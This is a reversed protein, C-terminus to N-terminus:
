AHFDEGDLGTFSTLDADTRYDSEIERVARRIQQRQRALLGARVMERVIESISRNEQRAIEALATHQEEELIIQARHM